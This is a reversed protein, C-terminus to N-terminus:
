TWRRSFHWQNQRNSGQPRTKQQFSRRELSSLFVCSEETMVCRERHGGEAVVADDDGGEEEGRGGDEALRVRGGGADMGLVRGRRRGEGARRKTM